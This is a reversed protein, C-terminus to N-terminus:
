GGGEEGGDGRSMEQSVNYGVLQIAEVYAMHLLSILELAVVWEKM